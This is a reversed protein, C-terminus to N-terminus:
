LHNLLLKKDIEEPKRYAPNSILIRLVKCLYETALDSAPVSRIDDLKIEKKKDTKKSGHVVASRYAYIKKIEQYTHYPKKLQADPINSLAGVRMALKHTMEQHDNDSLLAELGITADIVSDQEDERLFCQNLRKIAVRISNEDAGSLKSFLSGVEECIYSSFEPIDKKNWYYNEFKNPYARISTGYLPPLYAKYSDAWNKPRTLLQAYGTTSNTVIRLLAFLNNIQEIPYASVNSIIESLLWQSSNSVHWNKLVFMHTACPLVSEHVGPGYTKIPARALQFQENMKEIKVDSGLTLNDFSFKVFLIPVCIDIFLREEFISATYEDYILDFVEKNFKSNSNIHIYRDILNAPISLVMCKFFDATRVNFKQDDEREQLMNPHLLRKKILAQKKAFEWLNLFSKLADNKPGGFADRYKIPGQTFFEESFRPLGSAHFSMQPWNYYTGIHKKDQILKSIVDLGEKVSAVVYGYLDIRIKDFDESM